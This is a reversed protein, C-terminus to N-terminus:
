PKKEKLLRRCHSYDHQHPIDGHYDGQGRHGAEDLHAQTMVSKVEAM